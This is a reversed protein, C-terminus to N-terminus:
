STMSNVKEWDQFRDLELRMSRYVWLLITFDDVFGSVPIIDPIFDAPNIFYIMTAVIQIVSGYGLGKYHGSVVAQILRIFLHLSSKIEEKIESRKQANNLKKNILTLFQLLRSPNSLLGSAQNRLRSFFVSNIIHNAKM